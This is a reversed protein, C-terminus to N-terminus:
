FVALTGIQATMFWSLPHSYVIASFGATSIFLLPIIISIIHKLPSGITMDKM